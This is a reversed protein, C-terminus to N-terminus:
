EEDLMITRMGRTIGVYYINSETESDLTNNIDKALRINNDELGKYSHVTYLKAVCSDCNVINNTINKLLTELQNSNLKLLFKPLDDEYEDDSENEGYNLLKKHLNRIDIIKKEFGYIWVSKTKEATQLLTRWSRFLYTYPENEIVENVFETNNKSKSIMWCDDFKERILDCAPNGVRFTSYFEIILSNNPLYNFANICGRFQYIAQKPDGVFIKPVTTDNLLMKLMIMDFDQTEDIMIMDYNKDIYKKFWKAIYAQKRITEFTILERSKTKEWIQELLPKKDGIEKICFSRIDNNNADNCFNSFKKCYYQKLKFPKGDLFPIVKGIFQPRLDTIIPEERYISIYINYLLADFTSPFLNSIKRQKIKDKIETILSKNFAIYLIRKDSHILSLDLLTTTKGSGAVSKIALIDNKSFIHNKVYDRHIDDLLYMSKKCRAYIVNISDIIKTNANLCLKGEDTMIENLCTNEMVENFTCIEGIWCHRTCNETEIRYSERDVLWIWENYGTYLYVNRRVVKVAKEWNEHPIECIVINGVTVKRIYQKEVNFIWDIESTTDRSIIDDTSIKSNQFEIGYNTEKDYGDVIHKIFETRRIIERNELRLFNSFMSHFDSMPKRLIEHTITECEIHTDKKTNPHYFHETYSNDGNRSQRFHLQKNCTYCEFNSTKDIDFKYIDTTTIIKNDLICFDPM